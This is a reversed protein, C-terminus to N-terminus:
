QWERRILEVIYSVSASFTGSKAYSPLAVIRFDEARSSNRRSPPRETQFTLNKKMVLTEIPCARGGDKGAKMTLAHLGNRLERIVTQHM